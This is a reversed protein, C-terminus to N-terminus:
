SYTQDTPYKCVVTTFYPNRNEFSMSSNIFAIESKIGLSNTKASISILRTRSSNSNIKAYFCPSSLSLSNIKLVLQSLYMHARTRSSNRLSNIKLVLTVLLSLFCPFNSDPIFKKTFQNKASIFILFMFM